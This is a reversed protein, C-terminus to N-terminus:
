SVNFMIKRGLTKYNLEITEYFNNSPTTLKELNPFLRQIEGVFIHFNQDSYNITLNKVFPLSVVNERLLTFLVGTQSNHMYTNKYIPQRSGNDYLWITSLTDTVKILMSDYNGKVVNNLIQELKTGPRIYM